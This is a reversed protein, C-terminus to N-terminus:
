LFLGLSNRRGGFNGTLFYIFQLYFIDLCVGEPRMTYYQKVSVVCCRDQVEELPVTVHKDSKFVERELFKRTSLHYTEAPRLYYTGYLMQQGKSEFLREIVLIHPECCKEKADLYVFEGVKFTRQNCTMSDGVLLNTERILSDDSSRTETEEELSERLLKNQRLQEIASNADDLTYSLAPSSLLEGNKCLQDRQKIFYMQMEVTDEFIQSTTRSLRRARDICSFLDEQFVDLRKYVGKDM